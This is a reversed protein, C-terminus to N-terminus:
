VKMGGLRARGRAVPPIYLRERKVAAQQVVARQMLKQRKVAPQDPPAGWKLHEQEPACGRGGVGGKSLFPEPIWGMSHGRPVLPRKIPSFFAGEDWSSPHPTPEKLSKPFLADLNKPENGSTVSWHCGTLVNCSDPAAKREKLADRAVGLTHYCSFYM